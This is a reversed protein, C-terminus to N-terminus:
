INYYYKDDFRFKLPKMKTIVSACSGVTYCLQSSCQLSSEAQLWIKKLVKFEDDPVAILSTGTDIIAQDTDKQYFSTTGFLADEIEIQWWFTDKLKYWHLGYGKSSDGTKVYASDYGGFM